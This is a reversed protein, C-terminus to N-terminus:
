VTLLGAVLVTGPENCAPYISLLMILISSLSSVHVPQCTEFFRDIIHFRMHERINAGFIHCIRYM